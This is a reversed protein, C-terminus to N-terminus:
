LVKFSVNLPNKSLCKVYSFLFCMTVTGSTVVLERGTQTIQYYLSTSHSCESGNNVAECDIKESNVQTLSVLWENQQNRYGNQRFTFFRFSLSGLLERAKSYPHQAMCSSVRSLSLHQYLSDIRFRVTKKKQHKQYKCHIM